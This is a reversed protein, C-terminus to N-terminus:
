VGVAPAVTATKPASFALKQVRASADALTGVVDTAGLEVLKASDRALDDPRGWRSVVISRHTPSGFEYNGLLYRGLSLGERPLVSMVILKPSHESVRETVQLSSDTDTIIELTCGSPSVIQGLMRLVLTDSTDQVALGVLPISRRQLCAATRIRTDGDHPTEPSSPSSDPMGEIKDLIEGVVTWM